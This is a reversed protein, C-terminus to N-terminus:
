GTMAEVDFGMGARRLREVLKVGMSSAPTLVGGVADLDDKALCVASEGLMKATEGYGPDSQGRVTALLRPASKGDALGVLKVVFFGADRV